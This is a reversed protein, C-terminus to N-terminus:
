EHLRSFCWPPVPSPRLQVPVGVCSTESFPIPRASPSRNLRLITHRPRVMPGTFLIVAAVEPGSLNAKDAVGFKMLDDFSPVRRGYRMDCGEMEGNVVLAWERRPTTRIDYKSCNFELSHGYKVCHEMEM